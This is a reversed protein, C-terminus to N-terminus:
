QGYFSLIPIYLNIPCLWWARHLPLATTAGLAWPETEGQIKSKLKWIFWSFDSIVGLFGRTGCLTTFIYFKENSNSKTEVELYNPSVAPFMTDWKWSSVFIKDNLSYVLWRPLSSVSFNSCIFLWPLYTKKTPSCQDTCYSISSGIASCRALNLNGVFYQM